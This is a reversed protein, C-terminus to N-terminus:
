LISVKGTATVKRNQLVTRFKWHFIIRKFNSYTYCINILGTKAKWIYGTDMVM